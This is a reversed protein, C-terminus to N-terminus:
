VVARYGCHKFFGEADSVTITQLAEGILEM